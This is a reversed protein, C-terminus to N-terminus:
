GNLQTRKINEIISDLEIRYQHLPQGERVREDREAQLDNVLQQIQVRTMLRVCTWLAFQTANNM